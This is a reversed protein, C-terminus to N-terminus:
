LIVMQEKFEKCVKAAPKTELFNTIADAETENIGVSLDIRSLIFDLGCLTTWEEFFTEYTVGCYYILSAAVDSSLEISLETFV